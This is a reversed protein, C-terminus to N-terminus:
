LKVKSNDSSAASEPTTGTAYAKISEVFYKIGKAGTQDWYEAERPTVTVIALSPDSKGGPFWIRWPESWLREILASDRSIQATGSISIYLASDQLTVVVEPSAAMEEVKPSDISTSFYLKGGDHQSALSLPRGRLSGDAARTILMATRFKEILGWLRGKPESGAQSM